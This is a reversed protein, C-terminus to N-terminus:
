SRLLLITTIISYIGASILLINKTYVKSKLDILEINLSEIEDTYLEKLAESTELLQLDSEQYILLILDKVEEASYTGTGILL